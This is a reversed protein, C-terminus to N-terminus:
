QPIHYVDRRVRMRYSIYRVRVCGRGGFVSPVTQQTSNSIYYLSGEVKDDSLRFNVIGALGECGFEM